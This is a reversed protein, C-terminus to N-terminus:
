IYLCRPNLTNNTATCKKLAHTLDYLFDRTELQLHNKRRSVQAANNGLTPKMQCNIVFIIIFILTMMFLLTLQPHYYLFWNCDEQYM